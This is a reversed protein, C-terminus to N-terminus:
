TLYRMKKYNEMYLLNMPQFEKPITYYNKQRDEISILGYTNTKSDDPKPIVAFEFRLKEMKGLISQQNILNDIFRNLM